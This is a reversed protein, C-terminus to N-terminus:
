GERMKKLIEINIASTVQNQSDTKYKETFEHMVNEKSRHQVTAATEKKSQRKNQPQHRLQQSTKTHHKRM